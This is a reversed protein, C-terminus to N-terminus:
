SENKKAIILYQAGFPLRSLSPEIFRLFKLFKPFIFFYRLGVIQFGCSTLLNVATHPFIKLADKDFPIKSM